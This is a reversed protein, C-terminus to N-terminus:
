CCSWRLIVRGRLQVAMELHFLQSRSPLLENSVSLYLPLCQRSTTGTSQQRRLWKRYGRRNQYAGFSCTLDGRHQQAKRATTGKTSDRKKHSDHWEHQRAMPATTGNTGDHREHQRVKRATTSKTSDHKQATTGKTSDHKEHQRGQTGGHKKHQRAMRAATSSALYDDDTPVRFCVEPSKWDADCKSM